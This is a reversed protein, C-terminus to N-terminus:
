RWPKLKFNITAGPRCALRRVPVPLRRFGRRCHSRSSGAPMDALRGPMVPMIPQGAPQLSAARGPVCPSRRRPMGAPPRGRQWHPRPGRADSDDCTIPAQPPQFSVPLRLRLPAGPTLLTRFLSGHDRCQLHTPPVPLPQRRGPPHHPWHPQTSWALGDHHALSMPTKWPGTVRRISPDRRRLRRPPQAHPSPTSTCLLLIM